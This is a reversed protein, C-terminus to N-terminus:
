PEPDGNPLAEQECGPQQWAFEALPKCCLGSTICHAIEGDAGDVAIVIGRHGGDDAADHRFKASDAAAKRNCVRFHVPHLTRVCLWAMGVEHQFLVAAHQATGADRREGTAIGTNTLQAFHIKQGCCAADARACCHHGAAKGGGAFGAKALAVQFRQVAHIRRHAQIFAATELANGARQTGGPM